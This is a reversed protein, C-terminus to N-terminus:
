GLRSVRVTMSYDGSLSQILVVPVIRIGQITEDLTIRVRVALSLKNIGTADGDNM